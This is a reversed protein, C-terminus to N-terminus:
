ETQQLADLVALAINTATNPDEVVKINQNINIIGGVGPGDASPDYPGWDEPDDPTILDEFYDSAAEAQKEMYDEEWPGIGYPIDGELAYKLYKNIDIGGRGAVDSIPPTVDGTDPDVYPEEVDTHLGADKLDDKVEKLGEVTFKILWAGGVFTGITALSTAITTIAGTLGAEGTLATMAWSEGLILKLTEFNRYLNAAQPILGIIQLTIGAYGIMNQQQAYHLSRKQDILKQSLDSEQRMLRLSYANGTGLEADIRIRKERIDNLREETDAIGRQIDGMRMQTITYTRFISTVTTGIRGVDRLVRMSQILEAHQNRWETRILMLQRRQAYITDSFNRAEENAQKVTLAGEKFARYVESIDSYAQQAGEVEPKIGMRTRVDGEEM